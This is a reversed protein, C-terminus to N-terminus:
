VGHHVRSHLHGTPAPPTNLAPTHTNNTLPKRARRKARSRTPLRVGLIWMQPLGIFFSQVGLQCQVGGAGDSLKVVYQNPTLPYDVGNIKFSIDPLSAINSCDATVNISNIFTDCIVPPCTIISTGTDVVGWFLADKEAGAVSFSEVDVMWYGLAPQALSMPVTNWPGKAVAANVAGFEFFSSNDNDQSSLFVHLLPEPIAKESILGDLVTPLLSGIPLSIIPYALGAIGNFPPDFDDGPLVTTEGFTFNTAVADGITVVDRGLFGAAVGSGYPLFYTRGDVEYTSSKNEFFKADTKCQQPALAPTPARTKPRVFRPPCFVRVAFAGRPVGGRRVKLLAGVSQELGHGV